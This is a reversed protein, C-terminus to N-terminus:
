GWFWREFHIRRILRAQSAVSAPFWALERGAGDQAVASRARVGRLRSSKVQAGVAQCVSHPVPTGHRNNPYTPPLGAAAVGRRTHCDCVAQHRPLSAEVIIPGTDDRLDEPEYPWREIFRRLNLRATVPDESLYLTRFSNPPNWRGGLRMAFSADLPDSWAPDAIRWWSHGNPLLESVLAV